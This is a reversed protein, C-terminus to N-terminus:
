VWDSVLVFVCWFYTLPHSRLYLTSWFCYKCGCIVGMMSTAFAYSSVHRAAVTTNHCKSCQSLFIFSGLSM